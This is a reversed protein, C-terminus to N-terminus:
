LLVFFFGLAVRPKGKRAKKREKKKHKRQQVM